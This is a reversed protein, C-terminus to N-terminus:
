HCNRAILVVHSHFWITPHDITRGLVDCVQWMEVDETERDKPVLPSAVSQQLFPIPVPNKWYPFFMLNWFNNFATQVSQRSTYAFLAVACSLAIVAVAVVPSIAASNSPVEVHAELLTRGLIHEEVLAIDYVSWSM